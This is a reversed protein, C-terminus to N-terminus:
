SACGVVWDARMFAATEGTGLTHVEVKDVRWAGPGGGEAGGAARLAPADPCAWGQLVHAWGQLVHALSGPDATHMLACVALECVSAIRLAHLRHTCYADSGIM